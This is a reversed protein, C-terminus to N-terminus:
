SQHSTAQMYMRELETSVKDWGFIKEVFEPGMKKVSLRWSTDLLCGEIANFLSESDTSCIRAAGSEKLERWINVKYTTVVPTGCALAEILSIGFNESYSPLVFLEADQLAALKQKGRIMGPLMLRDLLGASALRERVLTVIEAEPPGAVVLKYDPWNHSIKVFADALLDLGKKFNLRGMFLIYKSNNLEAHQRVFDGRPPLPRYDGIHIGNPVVWEPRGFIYPRALIAEELATFHFLAAGCTVKNQFLREIISKQIRKRKWIFPDLTGHPRLIYPKNYLRCYLFACLDHFLYLSHLHVVDSAKVLGGLKSVFSLALPFQAPGISRFVVIKVRDTEIKKIEEFDDSTMAHDSTAITVFHGRQSIARAMDVCAKPPGGHRFALSQMVHLIRLSGSNRYSPKQFM